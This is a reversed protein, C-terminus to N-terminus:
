LLRTRWCPPVLTHWCGAWSGVAACVCVHACVRRVGGCRVADATGQYWADQSEVGPRQSASLVEVFGRAGQGATVLAATAACM